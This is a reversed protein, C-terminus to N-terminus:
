EFLSPAEGVSVSTSFEQPPAVEDEPVLDKMIEESPSQNTNNIPTDINKEWCSVWFFLVCILLIKKMNTLNNKFISPSTYLIGRRKKKIGLQHAM